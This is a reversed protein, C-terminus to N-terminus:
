TERQRERERDKSRILEDEGSVGDCASAKAKRCVVTYVFSVKKKLDKMEHFLDVLKAPRTGAESKM